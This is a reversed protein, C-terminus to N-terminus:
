VSRAIKKMNKMDMGAKCECTMPVTWEYNFINWINKQLDDFVAYFIDCVQQVYKEPCDIVISDHVTSIFLVPLGLEKIRKFAIIRALLMIDAGTGQVPYNTFVTWPIKLNGWKDRTMSISWSRGLPGDIPQGAVVLDKWKQHCNDIGYYKTYFKESLNDWFKPDMSVHTFDPDKSFGWGTKRYITSFLYIKSITRTPLAFAIQNKSHIDEGGLIESIGVEDEALELLVRWELQSADCQVLM